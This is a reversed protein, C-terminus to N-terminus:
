RGSTSPQRVMAAPIRFRLQGREGLNEAPLTLELDGEPKQQCYFMVTDGLTEGPALEAQQRSDAPHTSGGYSALCLAAGCGDKLCIRETDATPAPERWSRFSVRSEGGNVIHLRVCCLPQQTQEATQLAENRIEVPGFWADTVSVTLRTGPVQAAHPAVTDPDASWSSRAWGVVALGAAALTLTFAALTPLLWSRAKRASPAVATPHKAWTTPLTVPMKCFPCPFTSGAQEPSYTIVKRCLNCVYAKDKFM